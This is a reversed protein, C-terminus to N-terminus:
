FNSIFLAAWGNGDDLEPFGDTVELEPLGNPSGDEDDDLEPPSSGGAAEFLL